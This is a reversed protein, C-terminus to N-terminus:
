AAKGNVPKNHLRASIQAKNGANKKRSIIKGSTLSSILQQYKVQFIEQENAKSMENNKLQSHPYPLVGLNMTINM